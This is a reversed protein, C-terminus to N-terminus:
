RTEMQQTPGDERRVLRRGDRMLERDPLENVERSGTVWSRRCRTSRSSSVEGEIISV